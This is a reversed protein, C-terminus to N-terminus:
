KIKVNKISIYGQKGGLLKILVWDGKNEIVTFETDGPVKSVTSSSESPESKVEYRDSKGGRTTAKQSLVGDQSQFDAPQITISLKELFKAMLIGRDAAQVFVQYDKPAIEAAIGYYEKAKTFDGVIQYINGLNYASAANYPDSEYIAKYISFANNLDLKEIYDEAEKARAKVDKVRIKEFKYERLAFYPNFYCVLESACSRFANDALDSASALG